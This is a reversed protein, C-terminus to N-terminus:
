FGLKLGLTYTKAMPYTGLDIGAAIPNGGYSSVEPDYGYYNTFTFPNGVNAYISARTMGIKETLSAPLKYSLSINRVRIFNGSEVWRDVLNRANHNQTYTDTSARPIDTDTNQPTWRDMLKRSQNMMGDAWSTYSRIMSWIENGAQYSVLVGLTFNAYSFTNNFGGFFDPIPSGLITKDNEDIVGDPVGDPGSLDVYKLDGPRLQDRRVWTYEPGLEIEERTQYLGDTKYGYFSGIPDGERTINIYGWGGNDIWRIGRGGNGVTPGYFENSGGAPNAGLDTVVNNLTSFNFSTTWSLPGNLVQATANFEFGSNNVAGMNVVPRQDVGAESPLAIPLLLENATKDYYEAVFSLRGEFLALDLGVNYQVNEEWKLDKIALSQPTIGEVANDGWAYLQTSALSMFQFDPISQNGTIGYSLRLKANYIAPINKIFPEESLRWGISASPFIGYRNEPGFKSSGDRRVTATLLYREKFSYFTRVFQSVIGSENQWGGVGLINPMNGIIRLSNSTNGDAATYQGKSFFSQATYGILATLSHNNNFTKDFTLTHDMVWSRGRSENKRIEGEQNVYTYDIMPHERQWVPRYWYQNVYNVDAGINIKYKLGEIINYEGFVNGTFRFRNIENFNNISEDVINRSRGGALQQPLAHTYEGEPTKVPVWPQNRLVWLTRGSFIDDTSGMNGDQYNAGLSAGVKFKDGLKSDLNTRLSYRNFNTNLVIGEQQYVNSVIAFQTTESGGRATVGVDLVPAIRFLANQWDTGKPGEMVTNLSDLHIDLYAERHGGQNNRSMIFADQALQKHETANMIPFKRSIEQLGYSIDASVSTKGEKGRKTTIIVVGNAARAGYIATASADKLVEISEIDNPNMTALPSPTQGTGDTISATLDENSIPVGDIVYLPENSGTLSSAGRIRVSVGGGPEGSTAQVQMGAVQGQLAQDFGATPVSSIDDGKVSAVSGTVDRRKQTGYGVVVVEELSQIDESLKINIETRDNVPIEENLYGIYSFVLIADPSGISISYNGQLDTVTGNTTGKELVTAGPLPEGTEADTVKGQVVHQKAFDKIKPTIVVVNNEFIKYTVFSQALLQDLIYNIDKDDVSLTVNKNLATFDENYFFRFDSQEEIKKLVDRVTRDEVSFDFKKSQSYVAGNVNFTLAFCLILLMKMTLLWKKIKHKYFLAYVNNCKKM